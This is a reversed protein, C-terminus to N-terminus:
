KVENNFAERINEDDEEEDMDELDSEEDSIKNVYGLLENDKL